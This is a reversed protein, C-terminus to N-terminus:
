MRMNFRSIAVENLVDLDNKLMEERFTQSAKERLKELAKRKKLAETLDVRKKELQNESEFVDAKQKKIDEYLQEVFGIYLLTESITASERQKHQLERLLEDKKKVLIELKKKRKTLLRGCVALEKQLLEELFKRHSLVPELTFRNTGM